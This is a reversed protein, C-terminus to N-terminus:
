HIVNNDDGKFYSVQKMKIRAGKKIALRTERTSGLKILVIKQLLVRLNGM